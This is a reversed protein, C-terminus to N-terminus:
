DGKRESQYLKLAGRVIRYCWYANLIDFAIYNLGIWVRFYLPILLACEETVVTTLIEYWHWPIVIIRCCVFTILMNIAAFYYLFGDKNGLDYLISRLNVFPTSVEAILRYVVFFMAKGQYFLCLSLGVIGAIHHTMNGKDNRLKQDLLCVVFDGLFYGLSVQMATFGLPSKSFVRNTGMLGYVLIYVSLASSVIAHVTSSLMSHFHMNTRITPIKNAPLLIRWLLPSVTYPFLFSALFSALLVPTLLFPLIDPDYSFVEPEVAGAAM